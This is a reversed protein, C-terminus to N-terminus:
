LSPYMPSAKPQQNV